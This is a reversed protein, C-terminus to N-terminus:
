RITGIRELDEAVKLKPLVALVVEASEKVTMARSPRVTIPLILVEPEKAPPLTVRAESVPLM